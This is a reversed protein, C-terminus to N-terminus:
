SVNKRRRAVLPAKRKETKVEALTEKLKNSDESVSKTKRKRTESNDKESFFKKLQIERQAWMSNQQEVINPYKEIFKSDLSLRLEWGKGYCLKGIGSFIERLEENPLNIVCSAKSSELHKNKTFLSLQFFNKTCNLLFQPLLYTSVVYDRAQCMYNAPVGNVQSFTDELFLFESKIIWNGQVLTAIQPLVKLLNQATVTDNETLLSLLHQFSM